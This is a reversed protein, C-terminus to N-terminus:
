PETAIAGTLHLFGTPKQKSRYEIIWKIASAIDDGTIGDELDGCYANMMDIDSWEREITGNPFSNHLPGEKEDSMFNYRKDGQKWEYRLFAMIWEFLSHFPFDKPKDGLVFANTTFRIMGSGRLSVVWYDGYRSDYCADIYKICYGLEGNYRDEERVYGFKHHKQIFETIEILQAPTLGKM